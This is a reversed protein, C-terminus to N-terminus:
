AASDANKQFSEQLELLRNKLGENETAIVTESQKLTILNQLDGLMLRVSQEYDQFSANLTTLHTRIDANKAAPLRMTDSGNLLGNTTDRFTNTDKGLLFATQPEIDDSDFFIAASRDIRVALMELLASSTLERPTGSHTAYLTAVQESVELLSPAMSRIKKQAAYFETLNSKHDLIIDTAHASSNWAQKANELVAKESLSAGPIAKGRYEGGYTLLELDRILQQQSASLQDAADMDGRLVDHALRGIRQSHMVADGAIQAKSYAVWSATPTPANAAITANAAQAQAGAFGGITLLLVLGSLHSKKM